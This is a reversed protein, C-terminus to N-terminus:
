ADVRVALLLRVLAVAAADTWQPEIAGSSVVVVTEGRDVVMDIAVSLAGDAAIVAHQVIAGDDGFEGPLPEVRPRGLPGREDVGLAALVDSGSGSSALVTVRADVTMATGLASRFVAVEDTGTWGIAERGVTFSPVEGSRDTRVIRPLYVPASVTSGSPPGWLDVVDVHWPSLSAPV